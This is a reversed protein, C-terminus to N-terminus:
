HKLNRTWASLFEIELRLFVKGPLIINVIAFTFSMYKYFINISNM